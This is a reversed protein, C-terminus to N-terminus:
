RSAAADRHDLLPLATGKPNSAAHLALLVGASGTALDTSLRFLQHGPVAARGEHRVLHWALREVQRAAQGRVQPSSSGALACILGARGEFLGPMLVFEAACAREAQEVAEALRPDDRHRLLARAAVAAGASGAGLYATARDDETLLLGKGDLRATALDRALAAEAAQLWRAEGTHEFLRVLFLAVGSGGHLLGVRGRGLAPAEPGTLVGAVTVAEEALSPDACRDAFHLLNLGIGALGSALDAGLVGLGSRVERLTGARRLVDLADDRRGMRELALAAGHLGDYLGPRVVKPDRAARLLWEVHEGPVPYGAEALAYLVGSAGHALDVGARAFQEPDGPYLRDTRHPTAAALIGEALDDMVRRVGAPDDLAPLVAAAGTGTAGTDVARTGAAGAGAGAGDARTALEVRGAPLAGGTAAALRAVLEQAWGDPLAFREAAARALHGAKASDLEILFTLPLFLFLRLCALAYEDVATGSRAAPSIFGPAGFAPPVGDALDFALEFDVLALRGDPRVMVNGPHLDGFAVGREHLTRLMAALQEAFDLAQATYEAIREPGADGDLLPHRGTFLFRELKEGEVFEEVLYEHEWVVRHEYLRPVFDLGDLRRLMDRERHLRVVADAGHQDLGALPRAERLVVLRGDRRDRAKYVGGGNSFHLAREITYPFEEPAGQELARAEIQAALFAPVEVWQPVSFVPRRLDPVLRGDADRLASVTRGQADLCYLQRFAGYRVFLLSDRWRLDSLIYPGRRGKLLPELGELVRRLEQEDLPYLTLLKGSSGRPAYKSNAKLVIEPSALFKVSVREDRCFGIVTDIIQPAEDLAGSVHVKWGQEPLTVGEPHLYVWVGDRSRRWGPPVPGVAAPYLEGADDRVAPDDYFVQDVQCYPEYDSPRM